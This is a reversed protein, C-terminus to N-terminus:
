GREIKRAADEAIQAGHFRGNEIFIESTHMGAVVVGALYLGPRDSELTDPNTAPKQTVPDLRIGVRELFHLDPQYGTMALVFDNDIERPGDPTRVVISKAHIREVSSQFHAAIEGNKIRNEIDPLIWYKIKESLREGRHIMTVRAGARYCELAYIAASNKGGVVAVDCDFFPHPDHYYHRVKPLDEGPCGLRVPEDYYGTALVVKRTRYRRSEGSQHTTRVEFAGDQGRIDDVREYQRIALGYHQAVRRYYKLAETRNPKDRVSTMPIDGIELLEPTTFFVLNTPYHYLSNVLCGKEIAVTRLGRRQAEIACALGTPGAGVVLLDFDPPASADATM